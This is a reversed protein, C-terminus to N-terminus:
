AKRYVEWRHSGSVIHPELKKSWQRHADMTALKEWSEDLATISDLEVETVVLSENAGISGTMIRTKNMPWGIRTGIDERWQKVSKLVEEKQGFRADIEWRAIIM